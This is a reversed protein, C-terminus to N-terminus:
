RPPRCKGVPSYFKWTPFSTCGCCPVFIGLSKMVLPVEELKLFTYVFISMALGSSVLPVELGDGLSVSFLDESSTFARM